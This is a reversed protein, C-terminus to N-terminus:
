GRRRRTGALGALGLLAMAGPAPIFNHTGPTTNDLLIQVEEEDDAGELSNAGGFTWETPDFTPNGALVDPNRFAYGDTYEWVEGTGDVGIVGYVDLLTADSGDGTAPGDFLAIVDDGNIFAGLDLNDADFGYVDFFSSSGAADSNEYSIVYSQGAGLLGSLVTSASGGLTTNGNNYNGISFNSLDIVSNGTNTLEVFKPLGGSLPGDVIESIILNGSAITAIGAAAAASLIMHKSM